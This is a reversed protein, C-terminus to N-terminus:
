ALRAALASDHTLENRDAQAEAVIDAADIFAQGIKRAAAEDLAWNAPLDEPECVPELMITGGEVSVSLMDGDQDEILAIPQIDTVLAGECGVVDRAGWLAGQAFASRAVDREISTLPRQIAEEFEEICTRAGQEMERETM